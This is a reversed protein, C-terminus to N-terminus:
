VKYLPAYGGCTLSTLRDTKTENFMFFNDSRKLGVISQPRGPVPEVEDRQDYDAGEEDEVQHQSDQWPSDRAKWGKTRRREYM